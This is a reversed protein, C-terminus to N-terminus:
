VSEHVLAGLAHQDEIGGLGRNWRRECLVFMPLFFSMPVARMWSAVRPLELQNQFGLWRAKPVRFPHSPAPPVRQSLFGHVACRPMVM